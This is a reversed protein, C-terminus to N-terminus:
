FDRTESHCKWKGYGRTFVCNMQLWGAGQVLPLSWSKCESLVNSMTLQHKVRYNLMPNWLPFISGGQFLPIFKTDRDISQYFFGQSGATIGKLPNIEIRSGSSKDLLKHHVPTTTSNIQVSNNSNVLWLPCILKKLLRLNVANDGIEAKLRSEPWNIYLYSHM